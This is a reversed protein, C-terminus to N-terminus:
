THHVKRANETDSFERWQRLDYAADWGNNKMEETSPKAVSKKLLNHCEKIREQALAPNYHNGLINALNVSEDFARGPNGGSRSVSLVQDTM